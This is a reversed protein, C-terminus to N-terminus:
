ETPYIRVLIKKIGPVVPREDEVGDTGHMRRCRDEYKAPMGVDSVADLEVRAAHRELTPPIKLGDAPHAGFQGLADVRRYREAHRPSVKVRVSVRICIMGM